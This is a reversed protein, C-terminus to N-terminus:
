FYAQCCVFHILPCVPQLCLSWQSCGHHIKSNLMSSNCARSTECTVQSKLAKLNNRNLASYHNNSVRLPLCSLPVLEFVQNTGDNQFLHGCPYKYDLASNLFLLWLKESAETKSGFQKCFFTNTLPVAEYYLTIFPCLNWRGFWFVEKWEKIQSGVMYWPGVLFGDSNVFAM